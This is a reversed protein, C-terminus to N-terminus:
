RRREPCVGIDVTSITVHSNLDGGVSAQPIQALFIHAALGAGAAVGGAGEPAMGEMGAGGEIGGIGRAGDIGVGGASACAVSGGTGVGGAAVV